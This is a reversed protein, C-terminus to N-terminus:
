YADFLEMNKLLFFDFGCNKAFVRDVNRDGFYVVNKDEFMCLDLIKTSPKYSHKGLKGTFYVKNLEFYRDLQLSKFKMQQLHYNGDTVIFLKSNKALNNLIFDTKKSLTLKPSHKRYEYLCFNVFEQENRDGLYYYKHIESFIFPYSSGFEVWQQIAFDFARPNFLHKRSNLLKDYFQHIFDFEDYLTGDLDFGVFEYRDCIEFISNKM